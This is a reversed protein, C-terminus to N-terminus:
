CLGLWDRIGEEWCRNSLVGRNRCWMQFMQYLSPFDGRDISSKVISYAENIDEATVYLDSYLGKLVVRFACM